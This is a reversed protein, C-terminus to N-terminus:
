MTAMSGAVMLGAASGIVSVVVSLIVGVLAGIGAKKACLPKTDKWVIFLILGALPVFFGLVAWGISGSDYQDEMAVRRKM